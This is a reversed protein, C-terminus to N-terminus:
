PATPKTDPFDDTATWDRLEQRYTIWADRNPYDTLPVIFDSEELESNRWGRAGTELEETTLVPESFNTGDYSYGIRVESDSDTLLVWTGPFDDINVMRQIRDVKDNNIRAYKSIM